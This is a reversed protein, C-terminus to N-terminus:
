MVPRTAANFSDDFIVSSPPVLTTLFLVGHYVKEGLLIEVCRVLSLADRPVPYLMYIRRCSEHIFHGQVLDVKTKVRFGLLMEGDNISWLQGNWEETNQLRTFRDVAAIM